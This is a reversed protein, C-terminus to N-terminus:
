LKTPEDANSTTKDFKHNKGCPPLQSSERMNASTAATESARVYTKNQSLQLKANSISACLNETGKLLMEPRRRKHQARRSRITLQISSAIQDLDFPNGMLVM